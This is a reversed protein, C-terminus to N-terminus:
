RRVMRSIMPGLHEVMHASFEFAREPPIIGGAPIGLAKCAYEFAEGTAHEWQRLQSRKYIIDFGAGLAASYSEDSVAANTRVLDLELESLALDVQLELPEGNAPNFAYTARVPKDDYTESLIVVIRSLSFYEVYALLTRRSPDGVVSVCNFAHLTPRDAVLDRVYFFAYSPMAAESKLYSMAVDCTRADVGIAAALAVASKVMSRGALEGGFGSTFTVPSELPTEVATMAALLSQLDLQPHKNAIQKAMRQAEKADRATVNINTGQEGPEASFTPHEVTMSGDPLLLYRSGDVTQVKISPPEGRDREVGHMMAVHSFQRWIEADWSDGARSNCDRCIFGWIKRRGGISNPIIHEGSDGKLAIPNDCLACISQASNTDM